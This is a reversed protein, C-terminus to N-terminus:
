VTKASPQRPLRVLRRNSVKLRRAPTAGCVKASPMFSSHSIGFSFCLGPRTQCEVPQGSEESV